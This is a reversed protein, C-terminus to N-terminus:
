KRANDFLRRKIEPKKGFNLLFGIEIDTAKLYNLLQAEHELVIQEVAKLECMVTKEVLLDAFYEGVRQNKYYVAIPVQQEVFLGRERLEFALANEYNRELFGHGLAHYVAYFSKVILSGIEDREM